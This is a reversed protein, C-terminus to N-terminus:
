HNVSSSQFLDPQSFHDSIESRRRSLEQAKDPFLKTEPIKMYAEKHKGEKCLDDVKKMAEKYAKEKEQQMLANAKATKLSKSFASMNDVVKDAEAIPQSLRDFFVEDIEEPTGTLRIPLIHKAAPDGCSGTDVMCTVVVRGDSLFMMRTIIEGKLGLDALTKFFHKEM